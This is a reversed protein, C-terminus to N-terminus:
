GRSGGLALYGAYEPEVDVGLGQVIRAVAEYFAALVVLEVAREDGVASQVQDFTVNTLAYSHVEGALRMVLRQRADFADSSEWDVVARIQAESLGADAALACHHAWEYHSRTLHAIRLIVLERLDQDVSAEYRLTMALAAYGRLVAPAHALARYLAIPERDETVFREFVEAVIPNEPASASLAVRAGVQRMGSADGDPIEAKSSDM